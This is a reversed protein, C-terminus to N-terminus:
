EIILKEVNQGNETEVNILYVGKPLNNVNVSLTTVNSSETYVLRGTIDYITVNKVNGGKSLITVEETAPNPYISFVDNVKIESVSLVQWDGIEMARMIRPHIYGQITDIFTLATAKSMNPNTILADDHIKQPDRTVGITALYNTLATLDSFSWWDWPAGNGLGIDLAFLGEVTPDIVVPDNINITPINTFTKGYKARAALTYPDGLPLNKFSNNLGLSVAKKIFMNPGNVNVVEGGTTPVIVTGTDFPAFADRIAHITIMPAEINGELWSIDALAGGANICAQIDTAEGNDFYLNLLGNDGAINGVVVENIFSKGDAPNLFKPIAMESTKDLTNYALAVYGGSGQGYIAISNPDIQLPNGGSAGERTYRVVQKIDHIARYVANLLTARRVIEGTAGSAGPNWGHRYNAAIAVYGRKAWQRCMEVVVSDEKSGTPGNNVGTPLFNGTHVYIIVPRASLTDVSTDPQYIDMLLDSVKVITSPDVVFPTYYAAHTSPSLSGSQYDTKLTTMEAIIAAQNATFYAPDLLQLNKMYDVNTGYKENKTLQIESDTFIEDMYRTQSTGNLSSGVLGVALGGFLLIKKM